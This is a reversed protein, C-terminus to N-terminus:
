SGYPASVCPRETKSDQPLTAVYYTDTLALVHRWDYTVMGKEGSQEHEDKVEILGWNERKRFKIPGRNPKKKGLEEHPLATLCQGSPQM